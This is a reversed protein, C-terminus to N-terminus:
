SAVVKVKVSFSKVVEMCVCKFWEGKLRYDKCARHLKRESAFAKQKDAGIYYKWALNITTPSSTQIGKIRQDIDSSVGLKIDCGNSLAYLFYKRKSKPKQSTILNSKENLRKALQLQKFTLGDRCIYYSLLSRVAQCDDVDLKNNELKHQLEAILKETPTLKEIKRKNKAKSMVIGKGM